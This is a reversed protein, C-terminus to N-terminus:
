FEAVHQLGTLDLEPNGQASSEIALRLQRTQEVIAQVIPESFEEGKPAFETNYDVEGVSVASVSPTSALGGGAPQAVAGGPSDMATALFNDLPLTDAVSFLGEGFSEMLSSGAAGGVNSQSADAIQVVDRAAGDVGYMSQLWEPSAAMEEMALDADSYIADAVGQGQNLIADTEIPEADDIGFLWKIWGPLKAAWGILWNYLSKFGGMVWELSFFKAYDGLGILDMFWGFIKQTWGYWWKIPGLMFGWVAAGLDVFMGILNMGGNFLAKIPKLVFNWVAKGLALVWNLVAMGKDFIKGLVGFWWTYLKKIPKWLAWVAVGLLAVAAVVALVIWTLPNALLAVTFAWTAAIAASVAPLFGVVAATVWSWMAAVGAWLGGTVGFLGPIMALSALGQKYNAVVARWTEFTYTKLAAINLTLATLVAPLTSMAWGLLVPVLFAGIVVGMIDAVGTVEAIWGILRILPGGVIMLKDIFWGLANVLGKIGAAVWVLLKGVVGLVLSLGHALVKVIGVVTPLLARVLNAFAMMAPLLAAILERGIEGVALFLPEFAKAAQLIVPKMADLLGILQQMLPLLAGQLLHIVENIIPGFVKDIINSLQIAAVFQGVPSKFAERLKEGLFGAIGKSQKEGEERYYPWFFKQSTASMRDWWTKYTKNEKLFQKRLGTFFEQDVNKNSAIPEWFAEALSADGLEKALNEVLPQLDTRSAVRLLDKVKALDKDNAEFFGKWVTASNEAKKLADVNQAAFETAAGTIRKYAEVASNSVKLASESGAEGFEQLGPLVAKHLEESTHRLASNLADVPATDFEEDIARAFGKAEQVGRDLAKLWATENWAADPEIQNASIAETIAELEEVIPSRIEAENLDDIVAEVGSDIPADIQDGLSDLAEKIPDLDPAKVEIGGLGEVSTHLEATKKVASDVAAKIMSALNGTGEELFTFAAQAADVCRELAASAADFDTVAEKLAPSAKNEFELLFGIAQENM